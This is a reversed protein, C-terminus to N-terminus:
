LSAANAAKEPDSRDWKDQGKRYGNLIRAVSRYNIRDLNLCQDKSPCNPCDEPPECAIQRPALESGDRQTSLSRVSQSPSPSSARGTVQAAIQLGYLMLSARRTDMHPSNLAGLIQTLALKISSDDEIPPMPVPRPEGSPSSLRHLKNHFYCYQQNRLAAAHCRDGGTLIHRCENFM